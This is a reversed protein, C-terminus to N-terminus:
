IGYDFRAFYGKKNPLVEIDRENVSLPSGVTNLPKGFYDTAIPQGNLDAIVWM